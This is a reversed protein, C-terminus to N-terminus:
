CDPLWARVARTLHCCQCHKGASVKVSSLPPLARRLWAVVKSHEQLTNHHTAFAAPDRWALM